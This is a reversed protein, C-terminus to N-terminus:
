HLLEDPVPPKQTLIPRLQRDVLEWVWDWPPLNNDLWLQIQHYHLSCKRTFQVNQWLERLAIFYIHILPHLPSQQETYQLCFGAAINSDVSSSAANFVETCLPQDFSVLCTQQGFTLVAAFTLVTYIAGLSTHQLNVFPLVSVASTQYDKQNNTALEM